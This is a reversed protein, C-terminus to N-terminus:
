VHPHHVHQHHNCCCAIRTEPEGTCKKPDPGGPTYASLLTLATCDKNYVTVPVLPCMRANPSSFNRRGFAEALACSEVRATGDKRFSRCFHRFRKQMLHDAGEGPKCVAFGMM